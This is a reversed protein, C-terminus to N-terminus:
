HNFFDDNALQFYAKEFPLTCSDTLYKKHNLDYYQICDPTVSVIGNHYSYFAYNSPQLVSQQSFVTPKNLYSALTSPLDSQSVIEDIVSDQRVVGGTFILPIKFNTESYIPTNDPRIVGHDATIIILTNSWKDSEKIQNILLGLCSDTYAISNLYPDEKIHYNPVDFPEHSSLSFLMSFQPMKRSIFDDAFTQFVDEDHVGWVNKKNSSFDGQSKLENADNFLVKINAFDLNGGYYFSSWYRSNFLKFINPKSSLEAPFNTLTQRAGSPFGTTIALLGKDSRFSSAYANSFSVGQKSIKDLYPTSAYKEGGVEGVVKASFSELVILVINTNSDCTQLLSTYDNTSSNQQNLIKEAEDNQDFFQLPAHKDRELETALFSWAPNVAANNLLNNNSFYASSINIPVNSVGGRIMVFSCILLVLATWINGKEPLKFLGSGRRSFWYIHYLIFIFSVILTQTELSFLGANEKGLFQTFGLNTKQGWYYFFYADSAMVLVLFLWTFWGYILLVKPTLRPMIKGLLIGLIPVVSLYGVMSLDLLIGARWVQIFNSLFQTEMGLNVFLFYAKTLAFLGLWM